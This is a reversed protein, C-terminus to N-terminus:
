AASGVNKMVGSIPRVIVRVASPSIPQETNTRVTRDARPIEILAAGLGERVSRATESIIDRSKDTIMTGASRPKASSAPFRDRYWKILNKGTILSVATNNNKNGNHRLIRPRKGRAFETNVTVPSYHLFEGARNNDYLGSAVIDKLQLPKPLGNGTKGNKLRKKTGRISL